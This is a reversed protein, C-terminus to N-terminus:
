MQLFTPQMDFYQTIDYQTTYLLNKPLCHFFPCKSALVCINASKCNKSITNQSFSLSKAKQIPICFYYGQTRTNISISHRKLLIFYVFYIYRQKYCITLAHHFFFAKKKIAKRKFFCNRKLVKPGYAKLPSKKLLVVFAIVVTYM